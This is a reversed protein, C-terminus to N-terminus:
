FLWPLDECGVGGRCVCAGGGEASRKDVVTIHRMNLCTSRKKASLSIVESTSYMLICKCSVCARARVYVCVFFFFFFFVRVGACM